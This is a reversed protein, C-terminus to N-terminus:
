QEVRALEQVGVLAVGAKGLVGFVDQEYRTGLPSLVPDGTYEHDRLRRFGEPAAITQGAKDVLKRIAVVYRKGNQLRIMPRIFLGRRADSDARMDPEAFHLVPKGTDAELLLTTSTAVNLTEDARDSFVLSKRDIGGPFLALIQPIHSAGDAPHLTTFDVATGEKTRLVANGLKLRKKSPMSADPVLFVDSPFPLLCDWDAALPNCGEPISLAPRTIPPEDGSSSCADISLGLALFAFFRRM